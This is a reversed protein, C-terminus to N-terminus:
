RWHSVFTLALLETLAAPEPSVTTRPLGLRAVTEAQAALQPSVMSRLQVVAAMRLPAVVATRLPEVAVLILGEARRRPVATEAPRRAQPL